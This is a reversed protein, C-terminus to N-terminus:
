YLCKYPQALNDKLVIEKIGCDRHLVCQKIEFVNSVEIRSFQEDLDVTHRKM